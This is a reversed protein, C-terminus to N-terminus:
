FGVGVFDTQNGYFWNNTTNNFTNVSNDKTSSDSIVPTIPTVSTSSGLGEEVKKLAKVRDLLDQQYKEQTMIMGDGGFEGAFLTGNKYTTMGLAYDRLWKYQPAQAIAERERKAQEQQELKVVESMLNPSFKERPKPDKMENLLVAFEKLASAQSTPDGQMANKIEDLRNKFERVVKGQDTPVKRQLVGILAIMMERETMGDWKNQTETSIKDVVEAIKPLSGEWNSPDDIVAMIKSLVNNGFVIGAQQYARRQEPEFDEEDRSAGKGKTLEQVKDQSATIEADINKNLASITNKLAEQVAKSKILTSQEINEMQEFIKSRIDNMTKTDNEAVAKEFEKQKKKLSKVTDDVAWNRFYELAEYALYLTGAAAAIGLIAPGFRVLSTALKAWGNKPAGKVLENGAKNTTTFFDFLKSAASFSGGVLTTVLNRLPSLAGVLAAVGLIWGADEHINENLWKISDRVTGVIKGLTTKAKETDLGLLVDISDTIPDLVNEKVWKPFLAMASVAAGFLAAWLGPGNKPILNKIAEVLKSSTDKSGDEKPGDEKKGGDLKAIQAARTAQEKQNEAMKRAEELQKKFVLEFNKSLDQVAVKIGRLEYISASISNHTGSRTLEGQARIEEVVTQLTAEAM